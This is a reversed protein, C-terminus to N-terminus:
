FYRMLRMTRAPLPWDERLGAANNGTGPFLAVAHVEPACAVIGGSERADAIGDGRQDANGDENSNESREMESLM